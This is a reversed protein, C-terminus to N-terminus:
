AKYNGSKTGSKFVGNELPKLGFSGRRPGPNEAVYKEAVRREKESMRALVAEMERYAQSGEAPSSMRLWYYALVNDQEVGSGIAYLRGLGAQGNASGKRAAREFWTASRVMDVPVGLGHEYMVGILHYGGPHGLEALDM